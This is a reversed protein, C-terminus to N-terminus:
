ERNRLAISTEKEVTSDDVIKEVTHVFDRRSDQRTDRSQGEVHIVRKTYEKFITNFCVVCGKEVTKYFKFDEDQAGEKDLVHITDHTELHTYARCKKTLTRRWPNSLHSTFQKDDEAAKSAAQSLGSDRKNRLGSKTSSQRM